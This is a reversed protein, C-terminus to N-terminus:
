SGKLREVLQKAKSGSATDPYKEVIRRFTTLADARKGGQLQIWGILFVARAHQEATGPWEDMSSLVKVAADFRRLRILSLARTLGTGMNKQEEPAQALADAQDLARICDEFRSQEYLRAAVKLLAVRKAPRSALHPVMAQVTEIMVEPRVGSAQESIADIVASGGMPDRRANVAAAWLGAAWDRAGAFMAETGWGILRQEHRSFWQEALKGRAAASLDAYRTGPLFAGTSSGETGAKSGCQILVGLLVDQSSMGAQPVVDSRAALWGCFRGCGHMAKDGIALALSLDDFAASIGRRRTGQALCVHLDKLAGRADGSFLKLFARRRTPLRGGIDDLVAAAAKRMAEDCVAEGKAASAGKVREPPAHAPSPGWCIRKNLRKLVEPAAGTSKLVSMSRRVSRWPGDETALALLANLTTASEAERWLKEAAFTKIRRYQLRRLSPVDSTTAMLDTLVELSSPSGDAGLARGLEDIDAFTAESIWADALFLDQLGKSWVAERKGSGARLVKRVLLRLATNWLDAPWSGDKPRLGDMHEQILALDTSGEDLWLPLAVRRASGLLSTGKPCTQIAEAYLRAAEQIRRAAEAKRAKGILEQLEESAAGLRSRLEHWNIRRQLQPKTFYTDNSLAMLDGLVMKPSLSSDTGLLGLFGDVDKLAGAPLAPIGEQRSAGLASKWTRARERPPADAVRRLLLLWRWRLDLEEDRLHVVDLMRGVAALAQGDLSIPDARKTLNHITERTWHEAKQTDGAHHHARALAECVRLDFQRNAHGELRGTIWLRDRPSLKAANESAIIWPACCEVAFFEEAKMQIMHRRVDRYDLVTFASALKADKFLAGFTTKVEEKQEASLLPAINKFIHTREPLSKGTAVTDAALHKEFLHNAMSQRAADAEPKPRKLVGDFLEISDSAGLEKWRNSAAMWALGVRLTFDGLGLKGLAHWMRSLHVFEMAGLQGRRGLWRGELDKVLGGVDCRGRNAQLAEAIDVWRESQKVDKLALALEACEEATLQSNKAKVLLRPVDQAAQVPGCLLAAMLLGLSRKAHM